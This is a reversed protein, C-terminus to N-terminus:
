RSVRADLRDRQAVVVYKPDRTSQVGAEFVGFRQLASGALLALGSVAVAPRCRRSVVAGVAGGLTLYEAWQRLRHATGTTYAEAVVGLRQELLRSSMVELGAGAVAMRRAPGAEHVPALLMGLGGGSAAASGTFVFPLFPHAENWAPVATQSLLVATYSAVGPAVAAATLGAPRASWRILRGIGSCRLSDPIVEAAAALGAFPGYVSLIWTGVSMPSSPKAVRLMHHFREPRGLDAVLLYLSVLISALAGLRGVRRLSPRGTLDAGAALMAAGASLGGTFLYAAIKWVWVPSKLVPRGYYSRFEARPVALQEAKGSGRGTTM